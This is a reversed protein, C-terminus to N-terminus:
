MNCPLSQSSVTDSEEKEIAIKLLRQVANRDPATEGYIDYWNGEATKHLKYVEGAKFQILYEELIAVPVGLFNCIQYSEIRYQFCQKEPFFIQYLSSPTKQM